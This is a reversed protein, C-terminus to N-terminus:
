FRINKRGKVKEKEKKAKEISQKSLEKYTKPTKETIRYTPRCLPYAGKRDKRGCDEYGDDMPRNLDVWKERFWRLLGTDKSVQGKYLDGRKKYERVIWASKYIGTNSEFKANAEAKVKSYLAADIPIPM